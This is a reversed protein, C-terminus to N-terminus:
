LLRHQEEIKYHGHALTSIGDPLIHRKTDKASLAVKNVEQTYIQHRYSRFINMPRYIEQQTDLCRKYNDFTINQKIVAKTVGKAKKTTDGDDMKYAYLKPRLGVFGIMSKGGCEDKFMGIIKKNVGSPIGSPHNTPYNSTEFKEQVHPTIDKYFDETQIAYALSDTDTFLLRANDGYMEQIFGYHFKYMLLKSIDLTCAGLYVPKDFKLKTRKMHVAALNENFVVRRDFNPKSVLKLAQKESNVLRVDVRKRINEMTKGFVSNNMLKYFDKEADSTALARLETNLDIYPKLWPSQEFRIIRHVKKLIMGQSIYYQLNQLHLTYKKREGLHPVLKRVGDIEMAEPALPYDNHSDHLRQPYEMDSEVIASYKHDAPYELMEDIEEPDAWEFGGTPLPQAMAWGYLNNADLYTMFKTPQSPDYNSMYSNNTKGLRHSIMAVGGRTANEFMLLMDPDTLLELRIRTFNLMAEYSLGPSTFYHAPDLKHTKMCNDRFNEFIDELLAVDSELYLNHYDRMTRCGFEKFVLQAHAYDEDSIHEGSLKNFFAEKPPLQTEELKTPSDVYDYPYVGKRIMLETHDGFCKQTAKFKDKTLNKALNEISSLLFRMSDIFRMEIDGVKKSFSIYKEDTNPICNIKGEGFGSERVFLNADYGSLNHFVIPVFKPLQFALNCENHAAGRYKGTLHNHDRVMDGGLTNGCIHCLTSAAFNENDEDTMVLAIKTEYTKAIEEIERKMCEVFKKAVDEGCYIVSDKYDGHVYQIRYCFGSPQHLQYAKTYARSPDPQCTDMKETFCEFDAYIIFPVRMQRQHNRFSIFTGEEPMEIRVPKKQSCYEMHEDCIDQRSFHCLCRRCFYVSEKNGTVQSTLLRSLSKIWCYHQKDNHTIFMLDVHKEGTNESIRLPYVQLDEEEDEGKKVGDYGFVNINLNPNQREFKDIAKLSVPFEIGDFNLEGAWQKYQTVRNASKGDVEPNHLASLVAWKFCHDDENRVNIIAKKQTLKQPLPIYSKGALPKFENLHIELQDIKGFTWGSGHRMYKAMNEKVKEAVLSIEFDLDSSQTITVQYSRFTPYVYINEGTAPNSKVLEVTLVIQVKLAKNQSLTSEIENSITGRSIQFFTELDHQKLPKIVVTGFVGKLADRRDFSEIENEVPANEIDRKVLETLAARALRSYNTIGRRKAITRLEKKTFVEECTFKHATNTEILKVLEGKPTRSYGKLGEKKAIKRLEKMTTKVVIKGGVPTDEKEEQQRPEKSHRWCLGDKGPKSKCFQGKKRKLPAGCTKLEEDEKFQDMNIDVSNSAM